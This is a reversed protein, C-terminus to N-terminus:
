HRGIFNSSSCKEAPREAKVKVADAPNNTLKWYRDGLWFTIQDEAFQRGEPCLGSQSPM